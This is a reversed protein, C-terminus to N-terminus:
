VEDLEVIEIVKVAISFRRLMAELWEDYVVCLYKNKTLEETMAIGVCM